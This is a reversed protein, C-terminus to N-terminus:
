RSVSYIPQQSLQRVKSFIGISFFPPINLSFYASITFLFFKTNGCRKDNSGEEGAQHLKKWDM